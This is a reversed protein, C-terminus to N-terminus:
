FSICASMSACLSSLLYTAPECLSGVQYRRLHADRYLIISTGKPTFGYKHSDLSISTVAPVSFDFKAIPFSRWHTINLDIRLCM